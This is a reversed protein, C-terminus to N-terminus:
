LLNKQNDHETISQNINSHHSQPLKVFNKIREMLDYPTVPKMMFGDPTITTKLSDPVPFGSIWFVKFGEKIDNCTSLFAPPDMDPMFLDSIAFWAHERNERLWRIAKETNEFEVTEYGYHRLVEGCLARMGPEDDLVMISNSLTKTQADDILLLPLDVMFTAGEGPKSDVSIKGNHQKVIGYVMSLGLGNGGKEKKTTFYPDFIKEIIHPPIGPGNDAVEIRVENKQEPRNIRITIMMESGDRKRELLADRANMCLNLIVQHISGSDGMIFFQEDPIQFRITISSSISGTVLGHVEKMIENLNTRVQCIQTDGRSFSILKQVLENARSTATFITESMRKTKEEATKMSIIQSYGNITTLINRFDHALGGALQGLLEMRQTKIIQENLRQTETIDVGIAAMGAVRGDEDLLKYLSIATAKWQGDRTKFHVETLQSIDVFQDIFTKRIDTNSDPSILDTFDMNKLEEESFGLNEVAAPNAYIIKGVTNLGVIMAPSNEYLSRYRNEALYLKKEIERARTVDRIVILFGPVQNSSEVYMVSAEGIRMGNGNDPFRMQVTLPQMPKGICQKLLDRGNEASLRAIDFFYKSKTTKEDLGSMRLFGPNSFGIIGDKDCWVVAEDMNAMLHSYFEQISKIEDHKKQLQQHASEMHALIQEQSRIRFYFWSKLKEIVPPDPDYTFEYVCEEADTTAACSLEKVHLDKLGKLLAVGIACGKNFACISSSYRDKSGLPRVTLTGKGPSQLKLTLIKNKTIGSKVHGSLQKAIHNLPAIKLFFLQFFSVQSQIIKKGAEVLAEDKGGLEKKVNNFFHVVVRGDAWELPNKLLIKYEAIGNFLTDESIGLEKAYHVLLPISYCSADRDTYRM